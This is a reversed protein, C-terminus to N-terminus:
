VGNSSLQRQGPWPEAELVPFLMPGVPTWCIPSLPLMAQAAHLVFCFVWFGVLAFQTKFFLKKELLVGEKYLVSVM